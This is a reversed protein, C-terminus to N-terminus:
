GGVVARAKFLEDRGAIQTYDPNKIKIWTLCKAREPHAAHLALRRDSPQQDGSVYEGFKWKSVIGELDNACAARFLDAGSTDMHDVYLLRNCDPGVLKRLRRKREILLHARLNEGDLELLDFAYFHIPTRRRLLDYFQPRGDTGLYVIEGDLLASRGRLDAAVCSALEPFSKYVNRNRSILDCKGAHVSALARFGDYKLEHIWDAHDFPEALWTLRM